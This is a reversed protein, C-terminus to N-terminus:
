GHLVNIYFLSQYNVTGFTPMQFIIVHGKQVVQIHMHEIIDSEKHDWPSYCALSRQRHFKWALISAHTAM